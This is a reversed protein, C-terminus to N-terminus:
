TLRLTMRPPHLFLLFGSSVMGMVSLVLARMSEPLPQSALAVAATWGSLILAWLLLSGEHAGWVASFKYYWPLATNSHSAVYRLSFDDNLFALTLVAFALLVFSAGALALPRALRILATAGRLAGILPLSAQILALGFALILALHGLEPLMLAGNM